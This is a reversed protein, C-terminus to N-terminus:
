MLPIDNSGPVEVESDFLLQEIPIEMLATKDVGLPTKDTLYGPLPVSGEVTDDLGYEAICIVFQLNLLAINFSKKSKYASVMFVIIIFDGRSLEDYELELKTYDKLRFPAVGRFMPVDADWARVPPRHTLGDMAVNKPQLERGNGTPKRATSFQIGSKYSAVVLDNVKLMWGVTFFSPKTKDKTLVRKNDNYGAMHYLRPDATFLNVMNYGELHMAMNLIHEALSKNGKLYDNITFPTVLSADDQGFVVTHEAMCPLVALVQKSAGVVLAPKKIPVAVTVPTTAENVVPETSDVVQGVSVSTGSPVSAVPKTLGMAATVSGSSGVDGGSVSVSSSPEQETDDVGPGPTPRNGNSVTGESDSTPGLLKLRKAAQVTDTPPERRNSPVSLTSSHTNPGSM